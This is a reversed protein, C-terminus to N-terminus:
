APAAVVQLGHRQEAEEVTRVQRRAADEDISLLVLVDVVMMATLMAFISRYGFHGILLSTVGVSIPVAVSSFAAQL